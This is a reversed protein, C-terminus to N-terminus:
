LAFLNGYQLAWMCRGKGVHGLSSTVYFFLLYCVVIFLVIHKKWKDQM